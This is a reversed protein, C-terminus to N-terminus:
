YKIADKLKILSDKHSSNGKLYLLTNDVYIVYYYYGGSNVELAKWNKGESPVRDIKKTTSNESTLTGVMESESYINNIEDVFMGTIDSLKKGEIFLISYEDRETQYAKNSFGYSTTVDSLSFGLDSAKTLFEEGTIATKNKSCGTFFIITIFLITLLKIKKM